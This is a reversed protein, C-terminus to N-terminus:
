LKFDGSLVVQGHITGSQDITTEVGGHEGGIAGGIAGGINNNACGQLLLITTLFFITQKM